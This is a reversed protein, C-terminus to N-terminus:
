VQYTKKADRFNVDFTKSPMGGVNPALFTVNFSAPCLILLDQRILEEMNERVNITVGLYAPCDTMSGTFHCASHPHPWFGLLCRMSKGGMESPHGDRPINPGHDYPTFCDVM